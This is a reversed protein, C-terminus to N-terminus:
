VHPGEQLPVAGALIGDDADVVVNHVLVDENALKTRQEVDVSAQGLDNPIFEGVVPLKGSLCLLVIGRCVLSFVVGIEGELLVDKIQGLSRANECEFEFIMIHRYFICM